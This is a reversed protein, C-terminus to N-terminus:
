IPAAPPMRKNEDKFSRPINSASPKKTPEPEPDSKATTEAPVADVHPVDSTQTPIQTSTEKKNKPQLWKLLTSQKSGGAEPKKEHKSGIEKKINEKTDKKGSKRDDDKPPEESSGGADDVKGDQMHGEDVEDSDEKEGGEEDDVIADKFVKRFDRITSAGLIAFVVSEFVNHFKGEPRVLLDYFIGAIVEVDNQFVGTGYAGLVLHGAGRKHFLFLLRGIRERMEAIINADAMALLTTLPIPLPSPIRPLNSTSPEPQIPPTIPLPIEAPDPHKFIGPPNQSTVTTWPNIEDQPLQELTTPSDDMPISTSSASGDQPSAQQLQLGANDPESQTEPTKSADKMEVDTGKNDEDVEMGDPNNDPKRSEEEEEAKKKEQEVKLREEAKEKMLQRKRERQERFEKERQRREAKQQERSAEAARVRARLVRMDEEWQLKQRIEGANVAASTLIDVDIPNKFHGKDNRFLVVAPSYVMAHTYYQNDPDKVYHAYFQTAVPTILSPYLTSTRAISEEQAQAGNMFGGGAKKASAFNLVGITRNQVETHLGLMRHLNRAGVLTSVEEMVIKTDSAKSKGLDAKAWGAIEEDDPSFYATNDETYKIKTRLDFPEDAGPPFYAGAEIADLTMDAIDKLDDRSLRTNRAVGRQQYRSRSGKTRQSQAASKYRSNPRVDDYSQWRGPPQPERPEDLDSRPSPPLFM